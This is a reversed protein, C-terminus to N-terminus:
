LKKYFHYLTLIGLNKLAIRKDYIKSLKNILEYKLRLNCRHKKISDYSSEILIRDFLSSNFINKQRNIESLKKILSIVDNLTEQRLVEVPNDTFFNNFIKLEDKNLNFNYHNLGDIHISDIIKKRQEVKKNKSTKSINNHGVRYTLLYDPLIAIKGVKSIQLWLDYDQAVFFENNYRINYKELTNKRIMSTPNAIPNAFLLRVKIEEPTNYRSSIKNRFKSGIVKYHTGIADIEPNKEMYNVQKYIRNPDSLDDSDMIALYKGNAETLGLNRNYPIGRNKNNNILRIRNDKDQYSEIIKLTNDESADNVVLIELNRYTQNIISELAEAIYKEANYATIFVTVLPSSM